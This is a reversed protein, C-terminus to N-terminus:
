KVDTVHTGIPQITKQAEVKELGLMLLSFIFTSIGILMWGTDISMYTLAYSDAILTAWFTPRGMSCTYLVNTARPSLVPTIM